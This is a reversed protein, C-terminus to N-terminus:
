NKLINRVKHKQSKLFNQEEKKKEVLIGSCVQKKIKRLSCKKQFARNFCKSYLICCILVKFPSRGAKFYDRKLLQGVTVFM